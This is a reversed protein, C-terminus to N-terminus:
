NKYNVTKEKRKYTEVERILLCISFWVHTHTSMYKINAKKKTHKLNESPANIVGSNTSYAQHMYPHM